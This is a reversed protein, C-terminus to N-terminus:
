NTLASQVESYMNNSKSAFDNVAAIIALFILSVILGYEIATSGEEDRMFRDILALSEAIPGCRKM